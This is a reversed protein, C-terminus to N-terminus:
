TMIQSSIKFGHIRSKQTINNVLHFSNHTLAEVTVPISKSTNLSCCNARDEVKVRFSIINGVSHTVNYLSDKSESRHNMTVDPLRHDGM